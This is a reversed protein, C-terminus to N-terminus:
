EQAAPSDHRQSLWRLLVSFLAAPEFPKVIFDNMGADLCRAKDEAFANATMALIPTDRCASLSRIQRTAELGDLHPMQMDMIILAYPTEQAKRVAQLGDEATDVVLGQSEMLLRAIELNVPEDDAVLVRCGPYRAAIEGEVNVAPPVAMGTKDAVARDLRATFWFTSGEGPTSQLGVGGGMLEAFRRTIALGLGTGGYKRTTSNDAQEFANFLRPFVEPAIGVGTDSVEFRILVAQEETEQTLARLIVSGHDTFKVANTAYNLLAQKLRTVDGRLCFDLAPPEVILRLGKAQAREAILAGVEALLTAPDFTKEELTLKGAEIKSLDLIANITEMLHEAAADIKNLRERQEPTVGSRQLLHAMGVIATMPTRIEHSMNALFESKALSAQEAAEKAQALEATRTGVLEELHHHYAELESEARKRATIDAFLCAFQGRAPCFVSVEFHKGLVASYDEFFAPQGSSAVRGYREIWHPETGPLVELVRRGIVEGATLGTLRTFAPNIALFRYDVPTGDADFIIEHLAFGDMM